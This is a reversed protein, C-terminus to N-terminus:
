VAYRFKPYAFAITLTLIFSLAIFLVPYSSVGFCTLAIMPLRQYIYIPFVNRGAWRLISSDLRLKHMLLVVVIAFSMSMGNWVFGHWDHHRFAYLSIFVSLMLFFTGYYIASGWKDMKTRYGSFVMGLPFAMITNYWYPEKVFSMIQTMIVVGIFSWLAIRRTTLAAVYTIAYCLIIAFIYWNSNGLTEWGTLALIFKGLTLERGVLLALVAFALVARLIEENKEPSLACDRIDIISHTRGAYYGAVLKGEKDTGIPYQAKNRYRWPNEMGMIPEMPIDRFGGIRELNRRVVGEKFELQKSYSMAQLRCGGCQRAVPCRPEVRDPSPELIRELRAYAFSKKPRTIKALVKDGIVADKVFLTYGDVHGIGDGENTMDVIDTRVIDNKNFMYTAESKKKKAMEVRQVYVRARCM